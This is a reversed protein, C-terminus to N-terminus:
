HPPPRDPPPPPAIQVDDEPADLFASESEGITSRDQVVLLQRRIFRYRECFEIRSLEVYNDDKSLWSLVEGEFKLANGDPLWVLRGIHRWHRHELWNLWWSRHHEFKCHPAFSFGPILRLGRRCFPVGDINHSLTRRRDRTHEASDGCCTTGASWTFLVLRNSVIRGRICDVIEPGVKAFAQLIALCHGGCLVLCSSHVIDCIDVTPIRIHTDDRSARGTGPYYVWCWLINDSDIGISVM